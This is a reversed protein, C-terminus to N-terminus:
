VFVDKFVCGISVRHSLDNTLPCSVARNIVPSVARTDQMNTQAEAMSM